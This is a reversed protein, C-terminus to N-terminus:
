NDESITLTATTEAYSYNVDPIDPHRVVLVSMQTSDSVSGDATVASIRFQHTQGDELLRSEFLMYGNNNKIDSRELWEENIYEEVLYHDAGDVWFWGLRVKGPFIQTPLRDADDLIEIVISGSSSVTAIYKTDTTTTALAGDIYIYFIPSELDSSFELLYSRHDIRQQKTITVM